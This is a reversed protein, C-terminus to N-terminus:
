KLLIMKKTKIFGDTQLQYFYVGSPLESAIFDYTYSGASLKEKVLTRVERGTIDYVRLMAFASSKLDFNIKTTPNFPNPYNQHLSYNEAIIGENIQRINTPNFNAYLIGEPGAAYVKGSSLESIATINSPIPLTLNEWSTGGNATKRLGGTWGLLGNSTDSFSLENYITPASSSTYLILSWNTGGNTTKYLQPRYIYSFMGVDRYYGCMYGISATAFKISSFSCKPHISYQIWNTGGNSTKFYNGSDSAIHGNINDTFYLRNLKSYTTLSQNEWSSGSNTTKFIKGSEGCAWGTNNNLFYFDNISTNSLNVSDWSIGGNNTNFVKGSYSGLFFTLNDLVKLSVINQTRFTDIVNWGVGQNSTKLLVSLEGIKSLIYGTDNNIFQLASADRIPNLVMKWNTGGNTTSFIKGETGAIWGINSDQFFLDIAFVPVSQSFWNLGQNTTKFIKGNLTLIWGTNSNLFFINRYNEFAVFSGSWTNGGDVTHYPNSSGCSWGNLSDTFVIKNSFHSTAIKMKLWNQGGDTTRAVSDTNSANSTTLFIKNENIICISNVESFNLNQVSWNLGGNTTKVVQGQGNTNVGAAWGTTRNLFNVCRVGIPYSNMNISNWSVGGDTTKEILNGNLIIGYGYLSDVWYIKGSLTYGTVQPLSWNEGNDTSTKFYDSGYAVLKTSSIKKICLYDSANNLLTWAQAFINQSSFLLIFLIVLTFIKFPLHSSRM